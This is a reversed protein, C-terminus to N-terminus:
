SNEHPANCLKSDEEIHRDYVKLRLYTSIRKASDEGLEIMIVAFVMNCGSQGLFKCYELQWHEPSNELKLSDHFALANLREVILLERGYTRWYECNYLASAIQCLEIVDRPEKDGDVIDDALACYNTYLSLFELAKLRGKLLDTVVNMEPPQIM